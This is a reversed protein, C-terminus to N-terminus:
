KFKINKKTTKTETARLVINNDQCYRWLPLPTDEPIYGYHKLLEFAEQKYLEGNLNLEEDNYLTQEDPMGLNITVRINGYATGSLRSEYYKAEVDLTKIKNLTREEMIRITTPQKHLTKDNYLQVFTEVDYVNNQKEAEQCFEEDTQPIATQEPLEDWNILYVKKM